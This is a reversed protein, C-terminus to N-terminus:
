ERVAVAFLNLGLKHRRMRIARPAFGARVLLPWLDRGDYYMKHEDISEVDSLGLRFAATELAIKGAWTPVNIVLAGRPNLLSRCRALLAEPDAVHELVSVLLVVDFRPESELRAFVDDLEGLHFELNPTRQVDDAVSRDVGVGRAISPALAVLLHAHHGCGVDLVRPREYRRVVEEVPRRSLRQGLRDLLTLGRRGLAQAGM